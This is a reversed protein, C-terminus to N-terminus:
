ITIIKSPNKKIQDLNQLDQESMEIINSQADQMIEELSDYFKNFADELNKAEIPFKVTQGMGQISLQGEGIYIINEDINEIEFDKPIELEIKRILKHEEIKRGDDTQYVKIERLNTRFKKNM